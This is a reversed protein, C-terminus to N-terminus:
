FPGSWGGDLNGELSAFRMRGVSCIHCPLRESLQLLSRVVLSGGVCLTWCSLAKFIAFTTFTAVHM